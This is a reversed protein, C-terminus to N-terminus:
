SKVPVKVSKTPRKVLRHRADSTIQCFAADGGSQLQMWTQVCVCVRKVARKEKRTGPLGTGSLYVLRSKVSALSLSHCHCWSPWICTQVKSWVSLWALVGGSLHPAPPANMKASTQIQDWAFGWLIVGQMGHLVLNRWGVHRQRWIVYRDTWGNKCLKGLVCACVVSCAVYTPFSWMEESRAPSAVWFTPRGWCCLAALGHSGLFHVVHKTKAKTFRM